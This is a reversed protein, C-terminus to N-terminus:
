DADFPRDEFVKRGSFMASIVANRYKIDVYIAAAIHIPILIMLLYFIWEHASRYPQRWERMEKYAEENIGEKSYPKILEISAPDEAIWTKIQNGFPPMYFTSSLVLGTVAQATMLLLLATVMMRALPSHGLFRVPRGIKHGEITAQFQAKYVKGIPLIARWRSFRSGLFTWVLRWALTIVFVYGVYVHLTKLIVKGDNSIDLADSTMLLVGFVTLLAICLVSVWHFVRVTRDWVPYARLTQQTM